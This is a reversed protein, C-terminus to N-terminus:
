SITIDLERDFYYAFMNLGIKFDILIKMLKNIKKLSYNEKKNM